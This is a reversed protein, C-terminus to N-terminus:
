RRPGSAFSRRARANGSSESSGVRSGSVSNEPGSKASAALARARKKPSDAPQPAYFRLRKTGSCRDAEIQHMQDVWLVWPDFVLASERSSRFLRVGVTLNRHAASTNCVSPVETRTVV